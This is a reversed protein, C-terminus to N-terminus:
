FNQKLTFDLRQDKYRRIEAYESPDKLVELTSVVRKTVKKTKVKAFESQVKTFVPGSTRVYLSTM